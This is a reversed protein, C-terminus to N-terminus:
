SDTDWKLEVDVSQWGERDSPATPPQQDKEEKSDEPVEELPRLPEVDDGEGDSSEGGAERVIDIFGTWASPAPGKAKERARRGKSGKRKGVAEEAGGLPMPPIEGVRVLRDDRVVLNADHGVGEAYRRFLAVALTADSVGVDEANLTTIGPELVATIRHEVGIADVGSNRLTGLASALPRLSEFRKVADMLARNAAGVNGSLAALIGEEISGLLAACRGRDAEVPYGAELAWDLLVLARDCRGKLTDLANPM